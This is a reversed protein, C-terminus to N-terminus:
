RCLVNVTYLRYISYKQSHACEFWRRCERLFWATNCVRSGEQRGAVSEKAVVVDEEAEVADEGAEVRREEGGIERGECERGRSESERSGEGTIVVEAEELDEVDQKGGAFGAVQGERGQASSVVGCGGGVGKV